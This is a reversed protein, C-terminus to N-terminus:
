CPRKAATGPTPRAASSGLHLHADSSGAQPSSTSRSSGSCPQELVGARKHKNYVVLCSCQWLLPKVGHWAPLTMCFPLALVM